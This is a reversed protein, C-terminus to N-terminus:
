YDYQRCCGFYYDTVFRGNAHLFDRGYEEGRISNLFADPVLGMDQIMCALRYSLADPSVFFQVANKRAFEKDYMKNGPMALCPALNPASIIGCKPDASMIFNKYNRIHEPMDVGAKLSKKMKKVFFDNMEDASSMLLFPKDCSAKLFEEYVMPQIKRLMQMEKQQEVLESVKACMSCVMMSGCMYYKGNFVMTAFILHTGGKKFDEPKYADEEFSDREIHLDKEEVLDMVRLGSEDYGLFQYVRNEIFRMEEYEKDGGRIRALWQATTLSLLNCKDSYILTTTYTYLMKSLEIADSVNNLMEDDEVTERLIRQANHGIYSRYHFWSMLGRAEWVDESAMPNLVFERLRENEPAYEYENYFLDYLKLALELNGPNEPNMIRGEGTHESQVIDWVLLLLDQLNVEGPYYESLDYFPLFSGYRKKCEDNVVRWIGTGSCIDEFWCTFVLAAKLLGEKSDFVALVPSNKIEDAVKNALDVYYRDVEDAFLYPKTQLWDYPFIKGKNFTFDQISFDKM